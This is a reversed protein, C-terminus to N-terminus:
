IKTRISIRAIAIVACGTLQFRKLMLVRHRKQDELSLRGELPTIAPAPPANNQLVVYRCDAPFFRNQGSDTFQRRTTTANDDRRGLFGTRVRGM